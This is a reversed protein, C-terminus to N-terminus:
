AARKVEALLKKLERLRADSLSAGGYRAEVYTHTLERVAGAASFGAQELTRAHEEATVHKPRARGKRSLVRELELYLKRAAFASDALRRAV